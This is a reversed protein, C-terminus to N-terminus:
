QAQDSNNREKNPVMPIMIKITALGALSTVIIDALEDYAHILDDDHSAEEFEDL